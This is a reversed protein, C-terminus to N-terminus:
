KEDNRMVQYQVMVPLLFAPHCFEPGRSTNAHQNPLGSKGKQIFWTSGITSPPLSINRQMGTDIDLMNMQQVQSTPTKWM